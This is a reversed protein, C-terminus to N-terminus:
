IKIDSLWPLDRWGGSSGVDHLDLTSIADLVHCVMEMVLRYHWADYYSDPGSQRGWHLELGLVFCTSCTKPHFTQLRSRTQITQQQCPQELDPWMGGRNEPSFWYDFINGFYTVGGLDLENFIVPESPLSRGSSLLPATLPRFLHQCLHRPSYPVYIYIVM